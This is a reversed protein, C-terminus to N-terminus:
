ISPRDGDCYFPGTSPDCDNPLALFECHRAASHGDGVMTGGCARCSGSSGTEKAAANQAMFDQAANIVHYLLDDAEAMLWLAAGLRADTALVTSEPIESPTNNLQQYRRRHLKMRAALLPEDAPLVAIEITRM